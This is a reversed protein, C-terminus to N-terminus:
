QDRLHRGVPPWAWRMHRWRVADTELEAARYPAFTAWNEATVLVELQPMVKQLREFHRNLEIAEERTSRLDWSRMSELRNVDVSLRQLNRCRSLRAVVADSIVINDVRLEELSDLSELRLLGKDTVSTKDIHLVELRGLKAVYEMGSDSVNSESLGLRRVHPLNGLQRIDDDSVNVRGFSGYNLSGGFDVAVIHSFWHKGLINTLIGPWSLDSETEVYRIQGMAQVANRQQQYPRNIGQWGGIGIALLTLTVLM